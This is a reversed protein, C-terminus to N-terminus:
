QNLKLLTLVAKRLRDIDFPKKIFDDAGLEFARKIDQEDTKGSVFILPISRLESHEKLMQALEFGNIWPLGIDMVILDVPSDGLVKSLDTAEAALITKHGDGDFIRKMAARMTEDDEIVLIVKPSESKKKNIDRFANLPVVAEKAMKSKALKEIKELFDKTDIRKIKSM